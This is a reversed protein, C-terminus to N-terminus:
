QVNVTVNLAVQWQSPIEEAPFHLEFDSITSAYAAAINTVQINTLIGQSIVQRNDVISMGNSLGKNLLLLSSLVKKLEPKLKGSQVDTVTLGKVLSMGHPIYIGQAQNDTSVAMAQELTFFLKGVINGTEPNRVPVSTRFNQLTTKGGNKVSFSVGSSSFIIFPSFGPGGRQAIERLHGQLFPLPEKNRLNFILKGNKLHANAKDIEWFQDISSLQWTWKPAEDIVVGSFQVEGGDLIVSHASSLYFFALIFLSFRIYKYYIIKM